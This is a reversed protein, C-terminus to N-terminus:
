VFYSFVHNGYDVGLDTLFIRGDKRALFGQATLKEIEDGYVEGPTKKFADHFDRESIGRMMRLGLFMFESMVDQESLATVEMRALPDSLYVALDTAMHYREGRLLSAAGLGFGLYDRRMWYASNHRSEYGPKAFNSIEYHKYGHETLYDRTLYYLERETEEDPLDPEDQPAAANGGYREYFPTGEELILSYASVHEPLLACVRSLSYALMAEDQGPLATMLDVNINDFGAERAGHFTKLFDDYTHIRGLLKLEADNVSQLGISLRNIGAERYIKLHDSGVTGPNVEITIEADPQIDFRSMLKCLIKDILAPRIVSPTGGGIYVSAVPRLDDTADIQKCLSNVYNEHTDKDAPFSLFDCYACKRVCFPIHVYLGIKESHKMM